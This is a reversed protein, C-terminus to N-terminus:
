IRYIRPHHQFTTSNHRSRSRSRRCGTRSGRDHTGPGKEKRAKLAEERFEDTTVLIAKKKGNGGYPDSAITFEVTSGKRLNLPRNEGASLM